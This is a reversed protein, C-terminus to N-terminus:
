FKCVKLRREDNQWRGDRQAETHTHTHVGVCTHKLALSNLSIQLIIMLDSFLLSARNRGRISASNETTQAALAAFKPWPLKLHETKNCLIYDRFGSIKQSLLPRYLVFRVPCYKPMFPKRANRADWVINKHRPM